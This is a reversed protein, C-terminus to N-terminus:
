PRTASTRVRGEIAAIIVYYPAGKGSVAITKGVEFTNKTYSYELKTSPNNWEYSCGTSAEFRKLVSKKGKWEIKMVTKDIDLVFNIRRRDAERTLATIKAALREAERKATYSWLNPSLTFAGALLSLIAIGVTLETLTVARRRM